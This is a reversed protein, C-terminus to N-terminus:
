AAAGAVRQMVYGLCDQRIAREDRTLMALVTGTRLCLERGRRELLDPWPEGGLRTVQLAEPGLHPAATCLPQGAPLPRFNLSEIDHPLLLDAEAADPAGHTGGLSLGRPVKLMGLAEYLELPGEAEGEDLEAELCQDVLGAAREIGQRNGLEGCECTITPCLATFAAGLSGMNRILLALPSFRRALARHPAETSFLCSYLPNRGTNNHLDLAMVVHRRRMAEVVRNAMRQLPTAPQAFGWIRNFDPQDDLHRLGARAAQVNGVFLTLARPLAQGQRRALVRQVAQLGADENGHLLLSVFLPRAARGRLHILTPGRLLRHLERAPTTLFGPPLEHLVQLPLGPPVPSIM